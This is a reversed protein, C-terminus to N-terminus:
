DVKERVEPSQLFNKLLTIGTEQSKEPHFQVGFVNGEGVASTFQVGYTTTATTASSEPIYFSHVFYFVGGEVNEPFLTSRGRRVVDNWGIHPVKQPPRFRLVKGPLVGLGAADPSEESAEFLLQMGLCIGLLPIGERVARIIPARLGLDDIRRVAEGFAGVGPLIIKGGRGVDEPSSTLLVEEGLVELARRVNRLNGMGYDVVVIM